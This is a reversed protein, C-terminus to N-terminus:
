FQWDAVATDKILEQILGWRRRGLVEIHGEKQWFM